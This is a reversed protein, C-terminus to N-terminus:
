RGERKESSSQRLKGFTNILVGLLIAIISVSVVLGYADWFMIAFGNRGAQAEYTAGGNIGAVLGGIQPSPAAYYAQIVPEVQASVLYVIQNAPIKGNLQEIWTRSQSANETIVVILSFDGIQRINKLENSEWINQGYTSGPLTNRPSQIFQQIGATSGPLYGLNVWDTQSQYQHDGVTNVQQILREGQLVGLPNTSILVLYAGKVMLQDILGFGVSQMEAFDGAEYDIILLVPSRPSVRSLAQMADFVGVNVTAPKGPFPNFLLGYISAALLFLFIIIRLWPSSKEARDKKITKSIGEEEILQQFLEAQKKQKETILLNAVFDVEKKEEAIFPEVPLIDTLGALPGAVEIRKGGAPMAELPASTTEPEAPIMPTIESKITSPEFQKDESPPEQVVEEKKTELSSLGIDLLNEDIEVFPPVVGGFYNAEEKELEGEWELGPMERLWDPLGTELNQDAVASTSKVETNAKTTPQIPESELPEEEPRVANEGELDETSFAKSDTSPQSDTQTDVWKLWEPIDDAEEIVDQGEGEETEDLKMERLDKLWEPVEPQPEEGIPMETSLTDGETKESGEGLPILRAHCFECEEANPQNPQGCFPCIKMEM